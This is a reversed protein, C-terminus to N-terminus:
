GVLQQNPDRLGGKVSNSVLIVGGNRHLSPAFARDKRRCGGFTSILLFDTQGREGPRVIFVSRALRM